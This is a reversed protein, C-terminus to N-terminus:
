IGISEVELDRLKFLQQLVARGSHVMQGDPEKFQAQVVEIQKYILPIERDWGLHAPTPRHTSYFLHTIMQYHNHPDGLYELAKDVLYAVHTGGTDHDRELNIVLVRARARSGRIARTLGRTRYSPFLSSFQTGPGYIIFDANRLAGDAERSLHVDEERVKLFEQKESTTLAALLQKETCTLERPLLFIDLIPSCSQPGVISAESYLVEGDAKVATLVRAEGRTVNVLEARAECLKSLIRVTENFNCNSSLYIGAFLLNGFSCDDLTPIERRHRCYELFSNLYRVVAQRRSLRLDLIADSLDGLVDPRRNAKVLARLEDQLRAPEHQPLRYDLMQRLAKLESPCVGALVALNKRFDSPGLMGPVFRRLHGTSKGDDYGNVLLTVNIRPHNVLEALITKSGRGGCFLVL